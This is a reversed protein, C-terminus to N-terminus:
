PAVRTAWSAAVAIACLWDGSRLEHAVDVRCRAPAVLDREPRLCWHTPEDGSSWGAIAGNM